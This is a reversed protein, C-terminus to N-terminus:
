RWHEQDYRGPVVKVLGYIMLLFSNLTCPGNMFNM